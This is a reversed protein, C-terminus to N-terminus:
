NDEKFDNAATNMAPRKDSLPVLTAKGQPKQTLGYLLEEFKKKGLLKTMATIGLVKHEYPDYGAEKVTDAVAEENVYKRNSRGEVIKWDKWEKGSIAQKLAYAKIDGAWSVLVDVKSLIAEIEDDELTSPMEFDYRALELNYEARKRCTAKIKCFQCHDGAKYEGQGKAALQATPALVEDAWQQLEEKSVTYTSVNDRRPQFITMSITHFDYINEYLLLAGLAYIMMQPNKEAEVLIGVGYKFDIVTLMEDAVIVCDGTGFGEPVWKSFDLRQEILVIPDKCKEKAAALQELVYQAYMDSCEAMEADFYQLEAAPDDSKQGLAIKLKHECLSHADTGQMAFDSTIDGIKSCILASPPCELWRHSSSASLVAHKNPM